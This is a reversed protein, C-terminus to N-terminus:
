CKGEEGDMLVKDIHEILKQLQPRTYKNFARYSCQNSVIDELQKKIELLHIVTERNVIKCGNIKLLYNLIMKM